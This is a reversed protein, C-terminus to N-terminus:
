SPGVAGPTAVGLAELVLAYERRDRSAAGADGARERALILMRWFADQYRDLELGFRCARVVTAHDRALLAEEALGQAAEVARARCHDRRETVWEAPGEEPLLDGTYLDIAQAFIAASAEGRARAARGAAIARDFRGLDVDDPGVDLRYADGERAVLRGDLPAAAEDLHRRLATLAVHLSRSGAAADADPWLAEQIVERHVPAGARLALLRFLSRVRPKAGDLAIRRGEVDLACGGLLRIRVSTGSRHSAGLDAGAGHDAGNGSSAGHDAGAGNGSSAGHDSGNGSSAGHDSSAGNGSGPGVTIRLEGTVDPARGLGTAAL